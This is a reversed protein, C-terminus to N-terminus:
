SNRQHKNGLKEMLFEELKIEQLILDFINKSRILDVM